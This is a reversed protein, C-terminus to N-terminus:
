SFMRARVIGAVDELASPAAIPLDTAFAAESSRSGVDYGHMGAARGGVWSPAFIAGEDLLLMGDAYTGRPVHRLDLAAQDLVRGPLDRSARELARMRSRDGWVRLMTSDVFVDRDGIARLISRPDIVRDVKAMGHDGVVITAVDGKAALRDRVRAVNAAIRARAARARPGDHGELHLAGDLEAAYLFTLAPARAEVTRIAHEWREEEPLQWPTAFVDLGADRADALFTRAAGVSDAAFLDEREPLDLAAFARPPVRHLAVYGDIGTMRAFAKAVARRVPGREHFVRPLLGLLRLPSLISGGNARSFLCMRGHETARAGTLVTALAGSSYGLIGCLAARVPLGLSPFLDLQDPGLADVFVVLTRKM